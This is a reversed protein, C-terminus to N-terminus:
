LDSQSSDGKGFQASPINYDNPLSKLKIKEVFFNKLFKKLFGVFIVFDFIQSSDFFIRIKLFRRFFKFHGGLSLFKTCESAKLKRAKNVVLFLRLTLSMAYKMGKDDRRM